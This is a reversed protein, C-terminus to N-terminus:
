RTSERDRNVLVVAPKKSRCGPAFGAEIFAIRIQEIMQYVRSRSKGAAICIEGITLAPLLEALQRLHDPLGDVVRRVDLSLDFRDTPDDCRARELLASENDSDPRCLDGALVERHSTRMRRTFLVSAHNRMVGRVFGSWEGRRSDFKASRRLYDLLLEQRADDAEDVSFGATISLLRARLSAQEIAYLATSMARGGHHEGRYARPAFEPRYKSGSSAGRRWRILRTSFGASKM